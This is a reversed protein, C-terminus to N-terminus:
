ADIKKIEVETFHQRHGKKKHFGKKPKYKFSIVKKWKGNAAVVAIVKAGEIFPKGVTINGDKSVLLVETFEVDSNVENSLKEVRIKDGETVKYQKGGTKIIAYM